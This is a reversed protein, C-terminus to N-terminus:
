GHPEDDKQDGGRQSHRSANADDGEGLRDGRPAQKRSNGHCSKWRTETGADLLSAATETNGHDLASRDTQRRAGAIM